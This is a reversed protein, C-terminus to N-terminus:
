AGPPPPIEARNIIKRAGNAARGRCSHRERVRSYEASSVPARMTPWGYPSILAKCFSPVYLLFIGVVAMDGLVEARHMTFGMNPPSVSEESNLVLGGRSSRM